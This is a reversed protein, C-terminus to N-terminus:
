EKPKLTDFNEKDEFVESKLNLNEVSLKGMAALLAFKSVALNREASVLSVKADLFEQEADLVDLITRSGVSAEERVGELAINASNIQDKIADIQAKSSVYANWTEIARRRVNREADMIEIVRQNAVKEARNLRAQTAGGRYLPYNLNLGVTYEDSEDATTSPEYTKGASGVAYVEPLMEGSVRDVSFKAAESYFRAIFIDPHTGAAVDVVEGVTEPLPTDVDNIFEVKNEQVSGIVKEYAARRQEVVGRAAIEEAQARSFRSEAQSTDTKTLEGVEFRENTAELQERLVSVNNERLSLIALAEELNFYSEVVQSLISQETSFLLSRQAEYLKEAEGISAVTRGGLYLPQSIQVGFDQTSLRTKSTIGPGAANLDNNRRLWTQSAFTDIDPKYGAEAEPIGYYTALYAERAALLEPNSNYSRVMAESLTDAKAPFAVGVLVTTVLLLSKLGFQMTNVVKM